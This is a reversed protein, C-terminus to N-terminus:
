SYLKKDSNLFLKIPLMYINLLKINHQKLPSLTCTIIQHSTIIMTIMITTDSNESEIMRAQPAPAPNCASGPQKVGPEWTQLMIVRLGEDDDPFHSHGTKELLRDGVLIHLNAYQFGLRIRSVYLCVLKM